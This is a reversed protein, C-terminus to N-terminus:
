TGAVIQLGSRQKLAQLLSDVAQDPDELVLRLRAIQLPQLQGALPGLNTEDKETTIFCQAHGSAQAALLVQIDVASYRHHDPFTVAEALDVGLRRLEAFFVQPRAIGCFALAKGPTAALSTERRVRWISAQWSEEPLMRGEEKAMEREVAGLSDDHGPLPFVRHALETQDIPSDTVVADARRLAPLPERLRGVPLLTDELDSGPLMVIDFDRHLRRHQFADDLLHLRSGPFKEEALLGAQYRDAGVVVPVQLRRAMLLPEDGFQGATGAPDVVAVEKSRRGYGRSLVDFAIGREKLLEGLAIVFPTKGSGGVSLNGVSVVPRSLKRVRFIKRDYLANRAAVGAAFIASLPNV